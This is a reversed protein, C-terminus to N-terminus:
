VTILVRLLERLYRLSFDGELLLKAATGSLMMSPTKQTPDSEQADLNTESRVEKSKSAVFRRLSCKCIM